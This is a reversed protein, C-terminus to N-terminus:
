KRIGSAPKELLGTLKLLRDDWGNMSDRRRLIWEESKNGAV